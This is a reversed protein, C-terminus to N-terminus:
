GAPISVELAVGQDREVFAFSPTVPRRLKLILRVGADKTKAGRKGERIPALRASLLNTVFASTLLPNQNNKLRVVAGKLEYTVEDGRQIVSVEVRETLEVYVLSRGSGLDRFGSFTVEARPTVQKASKPAAHGELAGFLAAGFMGASLLVSNLTLGALM